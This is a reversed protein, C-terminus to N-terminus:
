RITFRHLSVFNHDRRELELFKAQRVNFDLDTELEGALGGLARLSGTHVYNATSELLDSLLAFSKESHKSPM